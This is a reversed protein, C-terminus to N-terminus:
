PLVSRGDTKTCSVEVMPRLTVSKSWEDWRGSSSGEEAAETKLAARKFREGIVWHIATEVFVVYLM